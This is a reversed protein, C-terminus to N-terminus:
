YEPDVKMESAKMIIAGTSLASLFRMKHWKGFSRGCVAIALNLQKACFLQPVSVIQMRM